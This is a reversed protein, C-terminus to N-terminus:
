GFKMLLVKGIATILSMSYIEVMIETLGTLGKHNKFTLLKPRLIFM